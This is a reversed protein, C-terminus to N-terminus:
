GIWWRKKLSPHCSRGSKLVSKFSKANVTFKGDPTIWDEWPLAKTQEFLDDFTHAQFESIKLQVRDACRLWLNAKPIDTMAASFQIRGDSVVIEAFGLDQVEQKVIAELGFKTTAVLTIKM